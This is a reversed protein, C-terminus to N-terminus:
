TEPTMAKNRESMVFGFGCCASIRIFCTARVPSIDSIFAPEGSRKKYVPPAVFGIVGPAVYVVVVAGVVVVVV